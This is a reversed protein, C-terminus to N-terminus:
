GPEVVIRVGKGFHGLRRAEKLSAQFLKLCDKNLILRTRFECLVSKACPQRGLESRLVLAWRADYKAREMAEADSCRNHMQLVLLLCMITPPPVSPRGNDMCYLGSLDVDDFIRAGHEALQAYFSGPPLEM